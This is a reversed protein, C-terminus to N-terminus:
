ENLYQPLSEMLTAPHLLRSPVKNSGMFDKCWSQRKVWDMLTQWGDWINFDVNRINTVQELFNQEFSAM